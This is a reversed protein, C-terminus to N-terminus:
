TDSKLRENSFNNILHYSQSIKNFFTSPSMYIFLTAFRSVFSDKVTFVYGSSALSIRHVSVASPRGYHVDAGVEYVTFLHVRTGVSANVSRESVVHYLL